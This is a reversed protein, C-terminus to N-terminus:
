FMFWLEQVLQALILLQIFCLIYIAGQTTHLSIATLHKVTIIINLADKGFFASVYVCKPTCEDYLRNISIDIIGRRIVNKKM